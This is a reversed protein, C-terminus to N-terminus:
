GFATAIERWEPGGWVVCVCVQDDSRLRYNAEFGSCLKNYASLKVDLEGETKRAQWLVPVPSLPDSDPTCVLPHLPSAPCQASSLSPGGCARGQRHM